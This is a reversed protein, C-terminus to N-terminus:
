YSLRLSLGGWLLDRPYDEGYFDYDDGQEGVADRYAGNLIGTYAISAGLQLYDTIDYNLYFKVTTGGFGASSDSYDDYPGEVEGAANEEFYKGSSTGGYLFNLYRGDGFNVNWDIGATLADCLEFERSFGLEYHMSKRYSGFDDYMYSAQGYVNVFPNDYTLKVYIEATDPYDDRLRGGEEYFENRVGHYAYWDHGLEVGFSQDGDENEWLTAGLHVNFDTENLGYRYVNGRRGTLDYNQWISFGLWFPEFYTLDAWICPQMVLDRNQVANRWVYASFFDADFGAEFVATEEEQLEADETEAFVSRSSSVVCGFLAVVAMLKNM